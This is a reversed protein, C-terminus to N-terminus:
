HEFANNWSPNVSTNNLEAETSAFTAYVSQRATPTLSRYWTLFVQGQEKLSLKEMARDNDEQLKRASDLLRTMANAVSRQGDRAAEVEDAKKSALLRKYSKRQEDLDQIMASAVEHLSPEDSGTIVLLKKFDTCLACGDSAQIPKRCSRCSYGLM